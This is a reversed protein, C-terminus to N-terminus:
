QMESGTARRVLVKSWIRAAIALVTGTGAAAWGAPSQTLVSLPEAGLAYGLGLGGVPLWTLLRATAKPGALATARAARSDLSGELGKAYRALIKALPAGSHEATHVCAALDNWVSAELGRASLAADRLASVPSLGLEAARAASELVGATEADGGDRSLAAADSWLDAPTRGAALLGALQHVLLPLRHLAEDQKVARIGPRFGSGALRIRGRSGPRGAPPTHGISKRKGEVLVQGPRTLLLAWAAALLLGTLAGSM